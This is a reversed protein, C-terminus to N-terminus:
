EVVQFSTCYGMGTYSSTTFYVARGSKIETGSVTFFGEEEQADAEVKILVNYYDYILEKEYESEEDVYEIGTDDPDNIAPYYEYVDEGTEMNLSQFSAPSKVVSLVEGIDEGSFKDFIRGGQSEYIEDIFEKDLSNIGLVYQIKVDNSLTEERPTFFKFYLFCALVAIIAIVIADVVNFRFKSKQKKM